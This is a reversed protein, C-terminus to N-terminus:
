FIFSLILNLYSLARTFGFTTFTFSITFSIFSIFTVLCIHLVLYDLFTKSIHLLKRNVWNFAVFKM